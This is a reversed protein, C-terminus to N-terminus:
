MPDKMQKAAVPKHSTPSIFGVSSDCCMLATRQVLSLQLCFCSQSRDPVFLVDCVLAFQFLPDIQNQHNLNQLRTRSFVIIELQVESAHRQGCILLTVQEQRSLDRCVQSKIQSSSLRKFINQAVSAFQARDLFFILQRVAPLFDFM